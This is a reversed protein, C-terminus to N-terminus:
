VGGSPLAPLGAPHALVVPAWALLAIGALPVAHDGRKATKEYVMLLTLAGMWRLVSDSALPALTVRHYLRSHLMPERSLIQWCGDGGV